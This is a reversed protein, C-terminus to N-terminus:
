IGRGKERAYEASGCAVEWLHGDPDSFYGSYGGWYVPEAAKVLTGGSAVALSLLDDVEKSTTLNQALTIGRFGSGEESVQADKALEDRPFLALQPGGAEFFAIETSDFPVRNFGIAEYFAIARSLDAVGLGIISISAPM